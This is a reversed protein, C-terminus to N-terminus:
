APPKQVTCGIHCVIPPPAEATCAKQEPTFPHTVPLAYCNSSAALEEAAPRCSSSSYSVAALRRLQAASRAALRASPKQEALTACLARASFLCGSPTHQKTQGNQGSVAADPTKCSTDDQLRVGAPASCSAWTTGHALTDRHWQHPMQLHYPALILQSVSRRCHM